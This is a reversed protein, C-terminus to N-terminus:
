AERCEAIPSVFNKIRQDLTGTDGELAKIFASGIIGGSAHQTAAEFSLRDTIGFGVMLPNTLGLMKISKFYELRDNDIQLHNGTTSDSSVVYIFGASISDIYKIRDLPTRSTILFNNSISYQDFLHRYNEQYEEPPLDPIIVSDVGARHCQQCFAEIGFQVIPNICGMLVVPISVKERLDKLQSFLLELSMGNNLAIQNAHQITPGDVLSDSFPIGIEILDAGAQELLIAIELTDNLDPFGATFYVSLVGSSKKEFLERLRNNTV